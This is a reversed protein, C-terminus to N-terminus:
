FYLVVRLAADWHPLLPTQMFQSLIHRIYGLELRTNTLYILRGVLRRYRQANALPGTISGLKHNIEVLVPSPKAGLLGAETIIDLAYKRQCLFFGFNNRAVKFSLFYKLKGLDKM